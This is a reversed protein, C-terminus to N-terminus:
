HHPGNSLSFLNCGAAVVFLWPSLLARRMIHGGKRHGIAIYGLRILLALILGASAAGLKYGLSSSDTASMVGLATVAYAIVGLVLVLMSPPSGSSAHMESGCAACFNGPPTEAGCSGCTTTGPAITAM